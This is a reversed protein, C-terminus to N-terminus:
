FYKFSRTPVPAEVAVPEVRDPGKDFKVRKGNRNRKPLKEDVESEESDDSGSDSGSKRDSESSQDSQTNEYYYVVKRKIRKVPGKRAPKAQTGAAEKPPVQIHEPDQDKPEEAKDDKEELVVGTDAPVQDEQQPEDAQPEAQQEVVPEEPEGNIIESTVQAADQDKPLVPRPLDEAKEPPVGGPAITEKDITSDLKGQSL